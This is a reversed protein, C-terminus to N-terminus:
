RFWRRIKSYTVLKWAEFHFFPIEQIKTNGVNCMLLVTCYHQTAFISIKTKWTLSKLNTSRFCFKVRFEIFINM